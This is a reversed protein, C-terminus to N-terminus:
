LITVNYAFINNYFIIIKNRLTTDSQFEYNLDRQIQRLQLIMNNFVTGKNKEPSSRFLDRLNINNWQRLM